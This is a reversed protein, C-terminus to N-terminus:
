EPLIRKVLNDIARKLLIAGSSIVLVALGGWLGRTRPEAALIDSLSSPLLERGDQRLSGLLGRGSVRIQGSSAGGATNASVETWYFGEAPSVLIESAADSVEKADKGRFTAEVFRGNALRVVAPSWSELQAGESLSSFTTPRPFVLTLEDVVAGSLRVMQIGGTAKMSYEHPGGPSAGKIADPVLDVRALSKFVFTHAQFSVHIRRNSPARYRVCIGEAPGDCVSAFLSGAPVRIVFEGTLGAPCLRISDHVSNKSENIAVTEVARRRASKKTRLDHVEISSVNSLTVNAGRMVVADPRSLELQVPQPLPVEPLTVTVYAYQPAPSTLAAIAIASILLIVVVVAISILLKRREKGSRGPERPLGPQGGAEAGVGAPSGPDVVAEEVAPREAPAAAAQGSGRAAGGGGAGADKRASGSREVGGGEGPHREERTDAMSDM